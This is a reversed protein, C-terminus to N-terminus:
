QVVPDLFVIKLTSSNLKNRLKKKPASGYTIPSGPDDANAPQVTAQKIM